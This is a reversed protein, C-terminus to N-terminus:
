ERLSKLPFINFIVILKQIEKIVVIWVFSQVLTAEFLSFIGISVGDVLAKGVVFLDENFQYYSLDDNIKFIFKLTEILFILKM